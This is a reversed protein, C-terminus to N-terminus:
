EDLSDDCYAKYLEELDQETLGGDKRAAAKFENKFEVFTKKPKFELVKEQKEGVELKGSMLRPLLMDRQKTLNRNTKAIQFIEDFIPEVVVNFRKVVDEAPVTIKIRKIDPQALGPQAANRNLNQMLYFYEKQHLTFYLYNQYVFNNAKMLFVHENAAFCEFPFKNRFITTKGIYAGDKYVLIANGDFKGRKMKDYFEHPIYKVSSYDFQALEGVAEAGLSPVGETLTDDIGGKPRSGSDLFVGFEGLRKTQWGKPMGNEFETTEHGPFRFRVFWEKYLNEAMKELIKIRKNNNEILEDYTSLIEAIRKQYNIDEFYKLKTKALNGIFICPQAAGTAISKFYYNYSNSKLLYYLYRNNIKERNPKIIAVSRQFEYKSCNEDVLATEGLTGVTTFLVDGISMKTRKNLKQRVQNNIKRDSSDFNILGNKINKASLLFCDGFSDDVVTNHVGDTINISIDKLRNFVTKM